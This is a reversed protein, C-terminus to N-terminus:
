FLFGLQTQRLACVWKYFNIYTEKEELFSYGFNCKLQNM